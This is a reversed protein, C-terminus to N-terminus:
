IEFFTVQFLRDRIAPSDAISLKAFGDQNFHFPADILMANDDPNGLAIMFSQGTAYYELGRLNVTEMEISIRGDDEQFLVSVLRDTSKMERHPLPKQTDDPRATAGYLLVCETKVVLAPAQRRAKFEALSVVNSAPPAAARLRTSAQRVRNWWIDAAEGPLPQPLDACIAKLEQYVALPDEVRCLRDARTGLSAIFDKTDDFESM